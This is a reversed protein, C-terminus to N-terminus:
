RFYSVSLLCYSSMIHKIFMYYVSLIMIFVTLYLIATVLTTTLKWIVTTIQADHEPSKVIKVHGATIRLDLIKSECNMRSNRSLLQNDFRVNSIVHDM